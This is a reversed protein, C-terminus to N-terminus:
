AAPRAVDKYDRQGPLSPQPPCASERSWACCFEASSDAATEARRLWDARSLSSRPSQLSATVLGGAVRSPIENRRSPYFIRSILPLRRQRFAATSIPGPFRSLHRMFCSEAHGVAEGWSTRQYRALMVLHGGPRACALLDATSRLAARSCLSGQYVSLDHVVVLDFQHPKLAVERGPPLSHELGVASIGLRDFFQVLQGDGCGAVLVRSGVGVDHAFILHRLVRRPVGTRELCQNTERQLQRLWGM